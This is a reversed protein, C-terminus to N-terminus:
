RCDIHPVIAPAATSPPSVTPEKLLSALMESQARRSQSPAFNHPPQSNGHGSLEFRIRMELDRVDEAGVNDAVRFQRHILLARQELPQILNHAARFLEPDRLRHSFQNAQRGAISHRQSKEGTGVRRHTASQLNRLRQPAFRLQRQAHPHLASGDILNGIHIIARVHGAGADVQRLPHHIAPIRPMDEQRLSHRAIQPLVGVPLWMQVVASLHLHLMTHLNVDHITVGSAPLASTGCFILRACSSFTASARRATTLSRISTSAASTRMMPRSASPYKRRCTERGTAAVTGSIGALLMATKGKSFRLASFSSAKKASPIWSSTRVLRPLILSSVTM